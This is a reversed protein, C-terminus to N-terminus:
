SYLGLKCLQSRSFSKGFVKTTVNIVGVDVYFNVYQIGPIELALSM